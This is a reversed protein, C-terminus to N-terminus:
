RLITDEDFDKYDIPRGRDKGYKKAFWPPSDETGSVETDKELKHYIDACVQAANQVVENRAEEIMGRVNDKVAKRQEPDTFIADVLTLLRGELRTVTDKNLMNINEFAISSLQNQHQKSM